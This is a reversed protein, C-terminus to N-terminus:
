RFFNGTLNMIVINYDFINHVKHVENGLEHSDGATGAVKLNPSDDSAIVSDDVNISDDVTISYDVDVITTLKSANQHSSKTYYSRLLPM